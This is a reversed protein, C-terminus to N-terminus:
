KRAFSNCESLSARTQFMIQFNIPRLLCRYKLEIAEFLLYWVSKNERGKRIWVCVPVCM